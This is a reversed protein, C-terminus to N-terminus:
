FILESPIKLIEESKCGVKLTIFFVLNSKTIYASAKFIPSLPIINLVLM